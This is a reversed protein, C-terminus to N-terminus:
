AQAVPEGRSSLLHAVDLILAVRGDGMITAGAFGAVNRYNEALSKIVIDEQGILEEVVLGMQNSQAEIIVITWEDRDAEDPSAQVARSDLLEDLLCVPVVRERM